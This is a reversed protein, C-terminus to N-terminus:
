CYLFSVFRILFSRSRIFLFEPVFLCVLRSRTFRSFTFTFPTFGFTLPLFSGFFFGSGATDSRFWLHTCTYHLFGVLGLSFRTTYTCFLYTFTLPAFTCVLLFGLTYTCHPTHLGLRSTHLVTFSLTFAHLLCLCFTHLILHLLFSFLSFAPAVLTCLHSFRVCRYFAPVLFWFTTHSRPAHCHITPSRMYYHTTFGATFGPTFPPLYGSSRYVLGLASCVTPTTSTLVLAFAFSVLFTSVFASRFRVHVYRPVCRYRVFRSCFRSCVTTFRLVFCVHVHPYFSRPFRFRIYSRYRPIFATSRSVCSILCIYFTLQVYSCVLRHYPTSVHVFRSVHFDSRLRLWSRVFSLPPLSSLRVVFVFTPVCLYVFSVTFIL